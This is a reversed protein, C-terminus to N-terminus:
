KNCNPCSKKDRFDRTTLWANLCNTHFIHACELMKTPNEKRTAEDDNCLNGLCISCTQRKEECEPCPDTDINPCKECSFKTYRTNWKEEIKKKYRRSSLYSKVSRKIKPYSLALILAAAIAGTKIQFSYKESFSLTRVSAQAFHKLATCIEPDCNQMTMLTIAGTLMDDSKRVVFKFICSINEDSFHLCISTVASKRQQRANLVNVCEQRLFRGVDKLSESASGAFDSHSMPKAFLSTLEQAAIEFTKAVTPLKKVVTQKVDLSYLGLYPKQASPASNSAMTLFYLATFFTNLKM